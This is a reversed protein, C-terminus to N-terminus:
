GSWINQQKYMTNKLGKLTYPALEMEKRLLFINIDLECIEQLLHACEGLSLRGGM